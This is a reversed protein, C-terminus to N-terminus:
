GHGLEMGTPVNLWYKGERPQVIKSRSSVVNLIVFKLSLIHLENLEIEVDCKM